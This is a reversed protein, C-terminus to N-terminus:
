QDFHSNSGDSHLRLDNPYPLNYFRNERSLDAGLDFTSVTRFGTIFDFISSQPRINTIDERQNIISQNTNSTEVSLNSIIPNFITDLADNGINLEPTPLSQNLFQQIEDQYTNLLTGVLPNQSNINPLLEAIAGSLTFGETESNPLGLFNTGLELLTNGM